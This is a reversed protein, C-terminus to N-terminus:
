RLPAVEAQCGEAILREYPATPFALTTSAYSGGDAFAEMDSVDFLIDM